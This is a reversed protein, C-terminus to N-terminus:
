CCGVDGVVTEVPFVGEGDWCGPSAAAELTAAGEVLGSKVLEEMAGDGAAAGAGAWRMRGRRCRWGAVLGVGGAADGGTLSELLGARPVM